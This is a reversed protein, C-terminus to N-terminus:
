SLCDSHDDLMDSAMMWGDVSMCTEDTPFAHAQTAWPHLWQRTSSHSGIMMMMMMMVVVLILM